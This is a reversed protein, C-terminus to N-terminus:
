GFSVRGTAHIMSTPLRFGSPSLVKRSWCRVMRNNGPCNMAMFLGVGLIGTSHHRSTSISHSPHSSCRSTYISTQQWDRVRLTTRRVSYLPSQSYRLASLPLTDTPRM